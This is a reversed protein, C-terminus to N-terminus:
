LPEPTLEFTALFIVDRSKVWSEPPFYIHSIHDNDEMNKKFVVLSDRTASIGSIQVAFVKKDNVKEIEVSTFRLGQPRPIAYVMGLAANVSLSNAYFQRATLLGTNYKIIQNKLALSDETEYPIKAADALDKQYAVYVLLYFKLAYLILTMCVVATIAMIGLVVVLKEHKEQLLKEKEQPPLLNIMM